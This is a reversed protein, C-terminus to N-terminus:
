LTIVGDEDMGVCEIYHCSGMLLTDSHMYMLNDDEFDGLFEKHYLQRDLFKLDFFGNQVRIYADVSCLFRCKHIGDELDIGLLTKVDLIRSYLELEDYNGENKSEFEQYKDRDYVCWSFNTPRYNLDIDEIEVGLLNFGDESL